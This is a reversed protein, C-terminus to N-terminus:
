ASVVPHLWNADDGRPWKSNVDRAGHVLVFTLGERRQEPPVQVTQSTATM